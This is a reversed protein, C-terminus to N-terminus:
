RAVGILKGFANIVDTLYKGISIGFGAKIFAFGVAFVVLDAFLIVFGVGAETTAIGLTAIFLGLLIMIIGFVGLAKKAIPSINEYYLKMGYISTAIGAIALLVFYPSNQAFSPFIVYLAQIAVLGIISLFVLAFGINALFAGFLGKGANEKKAMHIM